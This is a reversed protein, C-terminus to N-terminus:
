RFLLGQIVNVSHWGGARIGARIADRIEEESADWMSVTLLERLLHVLTTKDASAIRAEAMEDLTKSPGCAPCEQWEKSEM